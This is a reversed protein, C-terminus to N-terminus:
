CVNKFTFKKKKTRKGRCQHQFSSLLNRRKGKLRARTKSLLTERKGITKGENEKVSITSLLSFPLSINSYQSEKIQNPSSFFSFTFFISDVWTWIKCAAWYQPYSLKDDNKSTHLKPRILLPFIWYHPHWISLYDSLSIVSNLTFILPFQLLLLYFVHNPLPIVSNQTM